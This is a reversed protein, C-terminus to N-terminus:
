FTVNLNVGYRKTTPAGSLEIGQTSTSGFSNVEPDFRTYKPFNPAIYWLNRGTLTVTISGIPIKSFLKKPVEYGLTVERLRYVTADYVNWETASNIAFSNGFYLDNTTIRTQNPITKGGDLIATQTNPDGYVGPIVWGTERDRTDKTVGRGLLSSVTVSYMDGGRTMDFLGSLFIGKYAITNTIGMKFNPNPDGIFGEDLAVILDGTAPNILLAGSASDRANVTGRLYGFPLGPELYPSIGELISALPLRAVGEILKDVKNKNKTFTGHIEWKFDKTQVPRVMLDIEIGKNSLKGYNTYFASYGSSPPTTIPAIQNTSRRDYLAVDLEIKKKFFSLQAGYEFEKTFEPKLEPDFATADIAGTPQGLFSNGLIYVNTLSYPDADRGVKAWGARIKGFDLVNSRLKFADTFIFSGSVAPYFYSRNEVPLTSSWDNRGTANIYLFNKYGVTIDAFVGIIRRREYIDTIFAQQSTNKLTYIGRTIFTKGENTQRTTTRQNYNNGITAKISFDDHVKPTLTFLLNSEIEQKRYDDLVLRGKGEAARSGIETVERRNVLSVNSGIGYDLQLWKTINFDVHVGAIFREEDTTAINYKSSWNPHDYQGAANPILPFKNEDEFPLNFDWNRALFLTRAFVSAAGDVQNEGFYGGEQKSKSYSFNGRINIGNNLKTSGGLGINTRDYESGRVYGDHNLQSATLAVSSKEDGGSFGISNEYVNGTRFLDEVNNPFAKYPFNPGFLDPYANLLNPWTPISDVGSTTTGIVDGAANYINGLGFRGGWSGNSNQTRFNAGAGYDNQYDPLNGIKEFAYSSKFSVEFGKRGRSASGSKTTILIVGNSARSGYLAAASSGKLVNMSAIDNPDLNAIGSSYATGGSVQSSTTVQDNSYPVGDVIILPENNGFFSSNGRIQIRTAAGPTGQGSRIDVGAVKGQLGKLLDPESKQTLLTPDVKGISYGVAKDTRRIGLATVIVESLQQAETELIVDLTNGAPLESEFTKYSVLTFVIKSNAPVNSLSFNGSVDTQTAAGGDKVIVSVGPLPAGDKKDTVKGTINKQAYTFSYGAIIIATFLFLKKM